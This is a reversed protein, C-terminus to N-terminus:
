GQDVWLANVWFQGGFGAGDRAKTGDPMVTEGIGHIAPDSMVAWLTYNIPIQYCEKAMQKNIAEAAAKRNAEDPDSRAIALNQDVIPDQIRDFNM